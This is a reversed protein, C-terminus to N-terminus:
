ICIVSLVKSLIRVYEDRTNIRLYIANEGKYKCHFVNLSDHRHIDQLDSFLKKATESKHYEFRISTRYRDEKIESIHEANKIDFVEKNFCLTRLKSKLEPFDEDINIVIIQNEKVTTEYSLTEYNRYTIRLHYGKLYDVFKEEQSINSSDM